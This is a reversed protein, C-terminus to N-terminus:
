PSSAESTKTRATKGTLEAQSTSTQQRQTTKRSVTDRVTQATERASINTEEAAEITERIVGREKMDKATDSIEKATHEPTMDKITVKKTRNATTISTTDTIDPNSM